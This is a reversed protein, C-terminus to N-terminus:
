LQNLFSLFEDSLVDPNTIELKEGMKDPMDYDVITFVTNLITSLLNLLLDPKDLEFLTSFKDNIISHYVASNQIKSLFKANKITRRNLKEVNGTIIQPLYVLGQFQLKRKLLVLLKLYQNRSLVKLDRYGGFYKAYYYFVLDVQFKSFNHFKKYFEIEEKPVKINMSHKIKKITDKINIDSLIVLSEDVKHMNIELKDLGSLGEADRTDDLKILNYKYPQRSVFNLQKRIVVANYSIINSMFVYKMMNNPIIIDRLIKDAYVYPDNYLIEQDEWTGSNISAHRRVNFNITLYLKNYIDVTDSYMYLLGEYFDFLDIKKQKGLTFLFHFVVPTMIKISTSIKMMIKAHEDTFELQAPYKGATEKKEVSIFYNDETMDSIKQRMSKTFLINYIIKIFAKPSTVKKDRSDIIYKLKAYAMILEKEEDYYKLFYNIYKTIVDLSKAYSEKTVMFTNIPKVSKNFIKDFPVIIMKLDYYILKDEEKPVWFDVKPNGNPLKNDM